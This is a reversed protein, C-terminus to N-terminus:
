YGDHTQSQSPEKEHLQVLSTPLSAVCVDSLKSTLMRQPENRHCITGVQTGVRAKNRTEINKSAQRPVPSIAEDRCHKYPLPLYSLERLSMFFSIVTARTQLELAQFASVPNGQAQQGILKAWNFLELGQRLLIFPRLSLQCM